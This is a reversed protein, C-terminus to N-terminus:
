FRLACVWSGGSAHRVVDGTHPAHIYNTGGTSIAVHGSRYLVDGARAASPSVRQKACAYMSETYHPLSIGIQAYCWMVLGSCDFTKPGAAGWVYKCGLRSEAYSVVSGHSPVSASSGSSSSSSSSGSGSSSSGSGSSGSNSSGSNSSGSNSSGSNSSGSGSNSSSGSSSSSSSSSSAAPAYAKAARAEAAAKAAEEQKLLKKYEASLSNYTSEYESTKVKISSKYSAAASLQSKAENQNDVLEKKASELEAKTVKTQSVLDADDENLNNLTDWVTAFDDFSGVGMLVDLYSMSGSRYMSTARTGLHTQLKEIKAQAASIKKKAAAVKATAENYKERAGNYQDVAQDLEDNLSDLKAKVSQVEAKKEASTVAFASTPNVSAIAGFTLATGIFARRDLKVAM